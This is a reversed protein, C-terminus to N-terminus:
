KPAAPATKANNDPVPPVPLQRARLTPQNPPPALFDINLRDGAHVLVKRDQVV